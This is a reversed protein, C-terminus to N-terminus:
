DEDVTGVRLYGTHVEYSFGQGAGEPGEGLRRGGDEVAREDDEEGDDVYGGCLYGGIVLVVPTLRVVLVGEDRFV